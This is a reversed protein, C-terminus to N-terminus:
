GIVPWSSGSPSYFYLEVREKVEASSPYPQDVGRGLRKGGPFLGTVWQIPPQSPGWPRNPRTRFVEGLWSEIGPSDLGYRTAIGVIGGLRVFLFEVNQGCLTSIHKAHIDSCVAKIESCLM